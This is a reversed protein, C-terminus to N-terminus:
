DFLQFDLALLDFDAVMSIWFHCLGKELCCLNVHCVYCFVVSLLLESLDVLLVFCELVSDASSKPALLEQVDQSVDFLIVSQNQFVVVQFLQLFHALQKRSVFGIISSFETLRVISHRIQM